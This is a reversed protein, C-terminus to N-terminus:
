STKFSLPKIVYAWSVETRIFLVETGLKKLYRGYIVAGVAVIPVVSLM